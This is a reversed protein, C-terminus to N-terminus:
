VSLVKKTIEEEQHPIWTEWFPYALLNPEYRETWPLLQHEHQGCLESQVNIVITLQNHDTALTM